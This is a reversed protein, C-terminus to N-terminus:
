VPSLSTVALCVIAVEHLTMTGRLVLVIQARNHDTLVWFRPIAGTGGSVSTPPPGKPAELSPRGKSTGPALGPLNITSNVPSVAVSGAALAEIIEKDHRGMFIDWRSPEKPLTSPNQHFAEHEPSPPELMDWASGDDDESEDDQEAQQVVQELATREDWTAKSKTPFPISDKPVTFYSSSSAGKSAAHTQLPSPINFDLNFTPQLQHSSTTPLTADGKTIIVEKETPATYGVRFRDGSENFGATINGAKALSPLPVGFLIMGAGGYGGLVMRSFRKLAHRLVPYPVTSSPVEAEHSSSASDSLMFSAGSFSAQSIRHHDYFSSRNSRQGIEATLIEGGRNPLVVDSVIHISSPRSRLTQRRSRVRVRPIPADSDGTPCLVLPGIRRWEDQHIEKMNALWRKQHYTSTVGQISAWAILARAITFASYSDAPLHNPDQPNYWEHQLIRILSPIATAFSQADPSFPGYAEM